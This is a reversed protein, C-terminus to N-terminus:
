RKHIELLLRRKWKDNNHDDDNVLHSNEKPLIGNEEKKKYLMAGLAGLYGDHRLFLAEMKEESWFNLAHTFRSLLYLNDALFGGAFIIRQVGHIRANLYAVQTINNAIMFMLSRVIDESRLEPIEEEIAVKGLSSAIIDPSLGLSSYGPSSTDYGYIDGVYLDVNKADGKASLEKVEDYTQVKTLLRCLAWFTGGGLTSGNIREFSDKSYVKLISVGSGINVLLYPFCSGKIRDGVFTKVKTVADVTYIENSIDNELLYNLGKVLMETESLPEVTIKLKQKLIKEFKFAGGGTVSLREIKFQSHLNTEQVYDIFDNIKHRPIKIFKLMGKDIIELSPDPHLGPLEEPLDQNQLVYSPLDHPHLPQFYVIKTLSGGSDVGVSSLQIEIPNTSNTDCFSTVISVDNEIQRKMM